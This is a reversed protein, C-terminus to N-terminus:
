AATRNEKQNIIVITKGKLKLKTKTQLTKECDFYILDVLQCSM